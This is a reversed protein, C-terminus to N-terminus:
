YTGMILYGEALQKKAASLARITVSYRNGRGGSCPPLYGPGMGSRNNSVMSVGPPFGSTIGQPIAPFIVESKGDVEFAFKGHGGDSSLPRYSEDDFEVILRVTGAPIDSVKLPPSAPGVGGQQSCQMGEPIRKGDWKPDAFSVKLKPGAAAGPAALALSLVLVALKALM